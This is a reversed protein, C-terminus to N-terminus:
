KTEGIIEDLTSEDLFEGLAVLKESWFPRYKDLWDAVTELPGPELRYMRQKGDKRVQVLGADRLM